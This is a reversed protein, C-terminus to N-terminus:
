GRRVDSLHGDDFVVPLFCFVSDDVGVLRRTVRRFGGILFPRPHLTILIVSLSRVMSNKRLRPHGFIINRAALEASPNRSCTSCPTAHRTLTLFTHYHIGCGFERPLEGSEVGSGRFRM